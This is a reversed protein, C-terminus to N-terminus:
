FDKIDDLIAVRDYSPTIYFIAKQGEYEGIFAFTFMMINYSIIRYFNGKYQHFLDACYRFAREKAGSHTKYCDSLELLDSKYLRNYIGKMLQLDQKKTAKTM